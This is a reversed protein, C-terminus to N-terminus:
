LCQLFYLLPDGYKGSKAGNSSNNTKLVQVLIQFCVVRFYNIIGSHFNLQHIIVNKPNKLNINFDM